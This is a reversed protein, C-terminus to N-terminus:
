VCANTQYLIFVALALYLVSVGAMWLNFGKGERLCNCASMVTVVTAFPVGAMLALFVGSRGDYPLCGADPLNTANALLSGLYVLVPLGIVSMAWVLATFQQKRLLVM